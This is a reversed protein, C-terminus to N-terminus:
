SLISMKEGNLAEKLLIQKTKFIDRKYNIDDYVFQEIKRCIDTENFQHLSEEHLKHMKLNPMFIVYNMQQNHKCINLLKAAKEAAMTKIDDEFDHMIMKTVDENKKKISQKEDQLDVVDENEIIVVMEDTIMEDAMQKIKIQEIDTAVMTKIKEYINYCNDFKNEILQDRMCKSFYISLKRDNSANLLLMTSNANTGGFSINNDEIEPKEDTKLEIDSEYSDILYVTPTEILQKDSEFISRIETYNYLKGDSCIIGNSTTHAAITVFLSDYHIIGTKFGFLVDKCETLFSEMKRKTMKAGYKQLHHRDVNSIVKYGYENVFIKEYNEIHGEIEIKHEVGYENESEYSNIVVAIILANRKVNNFLKVTDEKQEKVTTINEETMSYLDQKKQKEEIYELYGALIFTCQDGLYVNTIPRGNTIKEVIDNIYYPSLINDEKQNNLTVENYKNSGFTLYKGSQTKILSHFTGCKIQTIRETRSFQVLTPMYIDDTQGVGCQGHDNFGWSYVTGKNSIVLKHFRGCSIDNIFINNKLFYQMKSVSMDHLNYSGSYVIGNSSLYLADTDGCAIKIIKILNFSQIRNWLGDCQSARYVNGYKDRAVSFHSGGQIDIIDVLDLVIEPSSRNKSYELGLQYLDNRGNAYMENGKTLWFVSNSSINTFIKNIKTFQKNIINTFQLNIQTCKTIYQENTAVACQGYSNDGCSFYENNTTAFITFGDGPYVDTIKIGNHCQKIEYLDKSHGLGVWGCYNYGVIYLRTMCHDNGM